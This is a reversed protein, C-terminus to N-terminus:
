PNAVYSDDPPVPELNVVLETTLGPVIAASATRSARGVKDFVIPLGWGPATVNYPQSGARLGRLMAFGHSDSTATWFKPDMYITSLGIGWAVNPTTMLTAGPMPEGATNLVRVRLGGAQEMNLVMPADNANASVTYRQNQQYPPAGPVRNAAIYGDCIGIIEGPGEPLGKIEFTGDPSVDASSERITGPEDYANPTGPPPWQAAAKVKGNTVPRPVNDSLKGHLTVGNKLAVDLEKSTGDKMEFPVADSLWTAGDPAKYEVTLAHKGDPIAATVQRGDSLPSWDAPELHASFSVTITFGSVHREPTEQYAGVTLTNGKKLVEDRETGDIPYNFVRRKAYEAKSATFSIGSAETLESMIVPSALTARGDAGTVELPPPGYKKENWGAHGASKGAQGIHIGDVQVRVGELPQSTMDVMRVKVLQLGTRKWREHRQEPTEADSATEQAVPAAEIGVTTGLAGSPGRLAMSDPALASGSTTSSGSRITDQAASRRPPATTVSFDKMRSVRTSSQQDATEQSVNKPAREPSKLSTRLFTTGVIIAIVAAIGLGVKGNM